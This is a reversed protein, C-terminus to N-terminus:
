PLVEYAVPLWGFSKWRENTFAKQDKAAGLTAYKGVRIERCEATWDSINAIDEQTLPWCQDYRCMDIPFPGSGRFTANVRALRQTTTPM